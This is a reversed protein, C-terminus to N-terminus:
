FKIINVSDYCLRSKGPIGDIDGDDDGRGNASGRHSRIPEGDINSAVNNTTNSRLPEGDIDASDDAAHPPSLPAGDM